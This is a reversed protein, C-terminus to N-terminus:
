TSSETHTIPRGLDDRDPPRMGRLRQPPWTIPRTIRGAEELARYDELTLGHHLNGIDGV